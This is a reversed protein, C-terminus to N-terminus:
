FYNNINKGRKKKKKEYKVNKPSSEHIVNSIQFPNSTPNISPSVSSNTIKINDFPVKVIEKNEIIQKKYSDNLTIQGRKLNNVLNSDTEENSFKHIKPKENIIIPQAQDSFTNMTNVNVKDVITSACAPSFKDIAFISKNNFKKKDVYDFPFNTKFKNIKM